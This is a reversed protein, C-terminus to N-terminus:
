KASSLEQEQQIWRTYVSVSLRVGPAELLRKCNNSTMSYLVIGILVSYCVATIHTDIRLAAAYSHLEINSNCMKMMPLLRYVCRSATIGGRNRGHRM